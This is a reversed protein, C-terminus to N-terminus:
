TSCFCFKALSPHEKKICNSQNGYKNIRSIEGSLKYEWDQESVDRRVHVTSEYVGGGPRTEITVQYTGSIEEKDPHLELLINDGKMEKFRLMQDNHAMRYKSTINALQLLSCKERAHSTIGNITDITFRAAGDVVEHEAPRIENWGMCACWHHAIDAERCTRGLPVETSLLSFARRSSTWHRKSFDIVSRLTAYIDFPTTLRDANTVLNRYAEPHRQRFVDPLIIAMFPLREELKGQFTQRVIEYRSGHDGFIVLITQNLAGSEKASQMFSLLDQDMVSLINLDDHTPDTLFSFGFKLNDPYSTMFDQLYRLMVVHVPDPGLCYGSKYAEMERWFTRMYYDTPQEKFGSLRYNFLSLEPRDEAFMTVYGAKEFDKWVLPYVNVPSGRGRETNPLESEFKGTLMPILAGTTADGVINYSNLFVAQLEEEMYALSKPINRIANMRSTSDMGLMIVNLSLGSKTRREQNKARISIEPDDKIRALSDTHDTFSGKGPPSQISCKVTLFDSQPRDHESERNSPVFSVNKGDFKYNGLWKTKQINDDVRAPFFVSCSDPYRDASDLDFHIMDDKIYALRFGTCTMPQSRKVLHVISSDNPNLQPMICAEKHAQSKTIKVDAQANEGQWVRM